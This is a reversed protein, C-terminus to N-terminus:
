GPPAGPPLPIGWRGAVVRALREAAGPAHELFLEPEILEVEMVLFGTDTLVGDVRAFAEQHRGVLALARAATEVAGEPPERPEVGGGYEAQVRFEGPPPTKLVAHSFAGGLFVLSWEGERVRPLFPQVLAGDGPCAEAVADRVATADEAGVRRIRWASAGIAPKVVWQSTGLEEALRHLSPLEEARAIFRTPVVPVGAAALEALYRKSVNRRIVEPPNLVRTGGAELQGLWALFDDLRLHYDWTHRVLVAGEGPGIGDWLAERVEVGLSRFAEQLPGTGPADRSVALLVASPVHGDGGGDHPGHQM